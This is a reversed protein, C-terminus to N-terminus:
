EDFDKGMIDRYVRPVFKWLDYRVFAVYAERDQWVHMILPDPKPDLAFCKPFDALDVGWRLTRFLLRLNYDRLSYGIFLTPWRKMRYRVTEPVPHYPDKDTMRQIFRIYDEDSIVISAGDELDGHM